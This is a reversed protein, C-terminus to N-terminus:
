NTFKFTSITKEIDTSENWSSIEILTGNKNIITGKTYTKDTQNGPVNYTYDIAKYGDITRNRIKTFIADLAHQEEPIVSNNSASYIKDFNRSNQNVSIRVKINSPTINKEEVAQEILNAAFDGNSSVKLTQPYDLSFKYTANTYTKWNSTDSTQNQDTFKFTSLIQNYTTLSQIVQEYPQNNKQINTRFSCTYPNKQRLVETTLESRDDNTGWIWQVGKMGNLTINKFYRTTYGGENPEDEKPNKLETEYKSSGWPCKIIVFDGNTSTFVKDTKLSPYPLIYKATPSYIQVEGLSSTEVIWDPPYNIQYKNDSDTTRTYTKWNVTEDSSNPKGMTGADPPIRYAPTSKAKGTSNQNLLTNLNIKGSYIFYGSILAAIALVIVVPSLGKQNHTM